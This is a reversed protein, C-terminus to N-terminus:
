DEDMLREIDKELREIRTKHEVDKSESNIMFKEHKSRIGDQNERVERLSAIVEKMSARMTEMAEHGNGNSPKKGNSSKRFKLWMWFAILGFIPLVIFVVQWPEWTGVTQLAEVSKQEIGNMSNGKHNYSAELTVRQMTM